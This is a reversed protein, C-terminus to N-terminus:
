RRVRSDPDLLICAQEVMDCSRKTGDSHIAVRRM